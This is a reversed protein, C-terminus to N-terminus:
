GSCTPDDDVPAAGYRPRARQVMARQEEAKRYYAGFFPEVCRLTTTPRQDPHHCSHAMPSRLAVSDVFSDM